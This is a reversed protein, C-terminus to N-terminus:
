GSGRPGGPGSRAGREGEGVVEVVAALDHAVRQSGGGRVGQGSGAPEQQGLAGPSGEGRDVDGARWSVPHGTEVVATLEDAEVLVGVGRRGRRRCIVRPRTPLGAWRRPSLRGCRGRRHRRGLDAARRRDLGRQARGAAGATWRGAPAVVRGRGGLPPGGAGCGSAALAVAAVLAARGLLGRM